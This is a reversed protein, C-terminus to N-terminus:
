NDNRFRTKWFSVLTCGSSAKRRFTHLQVRSSELIVGVYVWWCPESAKRILMIMVFNVLMKLLTKMEVGLENLKMKKTIKENTKFIPRHIWVRYVDTRTDGMGIEHEHALELSDWTLKIMRRSYTRTNEDLRSFCSTRLLFAFKQIALSGRIFIVDDCSKKMMIADSKISIKIVEYIVTWLIHIKCNQLECAVSSTWRTQRM